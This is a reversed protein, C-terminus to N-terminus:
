VDSRNESFGHRVDTAGLASLHPWVSVLRQLRYVFRVLVGSQNRFLSCMRLFFCTKKSGSRTQTVTAASPRSLVPVALWLGAITLWRPPAPLEPTVKKGTQKEVMDNSLSFDEHQPTRSCGGKPM